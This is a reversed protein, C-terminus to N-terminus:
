KPMTEQKAAERQRLDSIMQEFGPNGHLSRLDEDKAIIEAGGYHEALAEQLNHLAEDTQGALAAACAFNYRALAVAPQSQGLKANAIAELFFERAESYHGGMNRAFGLNELTWSLNPSGPKLIRRQVELVQLHIKEAENYRGLHRLTRGFLNMSRLYEPHEPGFVRQESELTQRQLQEVEAYRNQAQLAWSLNAM